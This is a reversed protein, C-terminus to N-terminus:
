LFFKLIIVPNLLYIFCIINLEFYCSVLDFNNQYYVDSLDILKACNFNNSDRQLIRGEFGNVPTLFINKEGLLTDEELSADNAFGFRVTDKIGSYNTAIVSVNQCFSSISCSLIFLLTFFRM